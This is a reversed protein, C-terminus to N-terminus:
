NAESCIAPIASASSACRLTRKTLMTRRSSVSVQRPTTLAWVDLPLCSTIVSSHQACFWFPSLTVVPSATTNTGDAGPFSTLAHFALFGNRVQLVDAHQVIKGNVVIQMKAGILHQNM